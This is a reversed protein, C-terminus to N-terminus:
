PVRRDKRRGGRFPEVSGALRWQKKDLKRTTM